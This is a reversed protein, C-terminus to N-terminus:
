LKVEFKTDTAYFQTAGQEQVAYSDRGGIWFEIACAKQFDM